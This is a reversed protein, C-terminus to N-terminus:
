EVVVEPLAPAPKQPLPMARLALGLLAACLALAASGYFAANWSGSKEYLLAALGGAVISAVGKSSYLFSYNSSSNAAGFFDAAAPPFLAYIEGWTFFVFFVCAVFAGTSLRGVTLVSMLAVSQLTFAVIMARERGIHDSVWGWFLRALGNAVSNLTVTLTLAAAGIKLSSAVPAVQATVMLGGIGMMLMMLYLMYFHPTKLMEISNFQESHRRVLTASKSSIARLPAFDAGPNSLLQAACLIVLGQLIGSYLFVASYPRTHLIRSFAPVFLAAGGGFGAAVIGSALGRKDPFWKLAIGVSGCYILSAGAGALGYSLYLEHLTRVSGISAWGIGCLVGGISMFVRPGIRDILWGSFPMGWTELAIFFTFGWQVESLKWNTAAIIPKVFLTWSYQLNAIMIMAVVAAGLRIWRNM